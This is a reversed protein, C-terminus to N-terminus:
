SILFITLEDCEDRESSSRVKIKGGEIWILSLAVGIDFGDFRGLELVLKFQYDRLGAM